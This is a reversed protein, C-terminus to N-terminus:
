ESAYRIEIRMKRLMKESQSEDFFTEFTKHSEPFIVRQSEATLRAVENKMEAMKRSLIRESIKAISHSTM